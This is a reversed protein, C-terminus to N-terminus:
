SAEGTEASHGPSYNKGWISGFRVLMKVHPILSHSALCTDVRDPREDVVTTQRQPTLLLHFLAGSCMQSVTCSLFVDKKVGTPLWSFGQRVLSEKLM